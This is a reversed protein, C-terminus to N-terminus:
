MFIPVCVCLFLLFIQYFLNVRVVLDQANIRRVPDLEILQIHLQLYYDTIAQWPHQSMEMHQKLM